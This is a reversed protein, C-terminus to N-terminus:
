KMEEKKIRFRNNIYKDYLTEELLDNGCKVCVTHNADSVFGCNMCVKKRKMVNPGFGYTELLNYRLDEKEYPACEVCELVDVNYLADIVWKGCKQCRNFHREGESKWALDLEDAQKEAKVPQTTCVQAGSLDCYFTYANGSDCNKVKYDATSKKDM